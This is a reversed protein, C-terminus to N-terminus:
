PTEGTEIAALITCEAISGEGCCARTLRSLAAKMQELDQIKGEIHRIKAEARDKIDRSSGDQSEKLQLLEDIEKLSFGLDKSRQIFQLRAVVDAPYQRYGSETRPPAAILGLKEYFRITDVILGTGRAVQGITLM